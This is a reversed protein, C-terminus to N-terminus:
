AAKKIIKTTSMDPVLEALYVEGGWSAVEKAGVVNDITYDAGKVLLDPKLYTILSYPTDEDFIVVLDVVSLSALLKARSYQENIPRSDGKLRKVSLDSNLAVVLRDCKNRAQELLSVHGTHLIDFCGNTFGIKLGNIWFPFIIIM